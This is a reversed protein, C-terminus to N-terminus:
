LSASTARALMSKQSSFRLVAESASVKTVHNCLELGDKSRVFARLLICKGPESLLFDVMVVFLHIITEELRCLGMFAVINLLAMILVIDTMNLKFGQFM